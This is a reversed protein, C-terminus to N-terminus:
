SEKMRKQGVLLDLHSTSKFNEKVFVELTSSNDVELFVVMM